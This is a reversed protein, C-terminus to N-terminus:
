KIVSVSGLGVQVWSTKYSCNKIELKWVYADIQVITNSGSPRGDWSIEGNKFGSSNTAKAEKQYILGGWRNFISLRWELANYAPGQNAGLGYEYITFVDNLGDGNPTFANPYI